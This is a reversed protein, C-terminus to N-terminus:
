LNVSEYYFEWLLYKHIVMLYYELYTNVLPLLGEKINNQCTVFWNIYTLKHTIMSSLNFFFM